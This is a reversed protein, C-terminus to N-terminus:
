ERKLWALWFWATRQPTSRESEVVLTERSDEPAPAAHGATMFLTEIAALYEATATANANGDERTRTERRSYRIIEIRRTM